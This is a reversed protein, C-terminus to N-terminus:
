GWKEDLMYRLLNAEPEMGLTIVHHATLHFNLKTLIHKMRENADSTDAYIHRIGYVERALAIGQQMARTGYGHGKCTDDRLIIGIECTKSDTDVLKLSLAGICDREGLFIGFVPHWQQQECEYDFCRDAYAKCYLYRGTMLVADPVYHAYFDHYESRTFPRLSIAPQM